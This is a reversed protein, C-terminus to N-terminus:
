YGSCKSYTFLPYYFPLYLFYFSLWLSFLFMYNGKPTVRIELRGSICCNNEQIASGLDLNLKMQLDDFIDNVSVNPLSNRHRSKDLSDNTSNLHLASDKKFPSPLRNRLVSSTSPRALHTIESYTERVCVNRAIDM